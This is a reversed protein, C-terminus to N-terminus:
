QSLDRGYIISYYSTTPITNNKIMTGSNDYGLFYMDKFDIKELYKLLLAVAQPGDLYDSNLKLLNSYDRQEILRITVDDRKKAESQNLYHSFDVSAVLITKQDKGTFNILQDVFRNIEDENASSSILVPVVKTEPLFYKIYPIMAYISQDEEVVYSDVTIINNSKLYQILDMDSDVAGFPTQWMTESTVFKSNGKETHNPGLLLITSPNQTSLINFFEAIMESAIAHHPVVGGKITLNEFQFQSQKGSSDLNSISKLFNIDDFEKVISVSQLKENPVIQAEKENHDKNLDERYEINFINGRNLIFIYALVIFLIVTFTFTLVFLSKNRM